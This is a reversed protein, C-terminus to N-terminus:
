AENTYRGLVASAGILGTFQHATWACALRRGVLGSWFMSAHVCRWAGGGGRLALVPDIDLVSPVPSVIAATVCCAAASVDRRAGAVVVARLTACGPTTGCGQPCASAATALAAAEHASVPGCGDGGHRLM